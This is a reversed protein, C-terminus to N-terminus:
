TTFSLSSKIAHSPLRFVTCYGEQSLCATPKGRNAGIFSHLRRRNPLCRIQEPHEEFAVEVIEGGKFVGGEVPVAEAVFLEVKSPNLGAQRTQDYLEQVTM